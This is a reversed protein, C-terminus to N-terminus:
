DSDSEDDNSEAETALRIRMGVDQVVDVMRLREKNTCGVYPCRVRANLKIINALSDKDYVHNCVKHRVPNVIPKKTFPDTRQLSETVTMGESSTSAEGLDRKYAADVFKEFDKYRKSDKVDTTINRTLNRFDKEFTAAYPNSKCQDICKVYAQHDLEHSSLIKMLYTYTLKSQTVFDDENTLNLVTLEVSKHISSAVKELKSSFESM